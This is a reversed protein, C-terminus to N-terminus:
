LKEKWPKLKYPLHALLIASDESTLPESYSSLLINVQQLCLVFFNGKKKVHVHSCSFICLSSALVIEKAETKKSSIFAM